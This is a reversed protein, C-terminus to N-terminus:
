QNSKPKKVPKVKMEAVEYRKGAGPFHLYRKKKGDWRLYRFSKHVVACVAKMAKQANGKEVGDKQFKSYLMAWAVAYEHPYRATTTGVVMSPRAKCEEFAEAIRETAGWCCSMVLAKPSCDFDEFIRAFNAWTLHKDTTLWIGKGSGHCSLHVVDYNKDSAKKIAKKFHDLDLAFRFEARIWLLRFLQRTATGDLRDGYFDEPSSSEIIFVKLRVEL